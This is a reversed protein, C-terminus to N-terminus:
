PRIALGRAAPLRRGVAGGSRATTNVAAQNASQAGIGRELRMALFLLGGMFWYYVAATVNFVIGTPLHVAFFLLACIAVMRCFRDKLTMAQQFAFFIMFIRSGYILLFGPIGLELMVRGTEAEIRYGRLWTARSVGHVLAAAAQHTAGIGIGFTGAETAVRYPEELPTLVRSMTDSSAAARGYFASVANSAGYAVLGGVIATLALVRSVARLSGSDRVAALWAFLPFTVAFMLVPARSGSALMGILTLGLAAYLGIYSKLKWVSTWLLTLIILASAFLYSVFGTIYSFTGTVRVYTSTGFTSIAGAQSDRAYTNLSSSAPSAFQVLAFLGMPIAILAYYYLFRWLEARTRFTAPVVWLLPVYLFYAKFGFLGVLINPLAPNFVELLSWFAGFGILVTLAQPVPSRLVGRDHSTLYGVYAALLVGDKAFYVLDQAGPLLWKRVAGELVLLVMAFQVAQRWHKFSWLGIGAAIALLALRTIM